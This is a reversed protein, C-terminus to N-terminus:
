DEMRKSNAWFDHTSLLEEKTEKKVIEDLQEITRRRVMDIKENVFREAAGPRIQDLPVMDEMLGEVFESNIDIRLAGWPTDDYPIPLERHNLQTEQVHVYSSIGLRDKMEMCYNVADAENDYALANTTGDDSHEIVVWIKEGKLTM